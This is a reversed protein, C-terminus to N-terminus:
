GGTFAAPFFYVVVIKKGVHDSSKWTKGTDDTAQFAPAPDGVKIEAAKKEEASVAGPVAALSGLALLALGLRNLLRM